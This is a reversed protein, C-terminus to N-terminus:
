IAPSGGTVRVWLVQGRRWASAVLGQHADRLLVETIDAIKTRPQL